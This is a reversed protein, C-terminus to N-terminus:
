GSVDSASRRAPIAAVGVALVALATGAVTGWGPPGGATPVTLDLVLAGLLQGGITALTFLLVGTRGVLAAASVVFVIGLPGGLYLWLDAPPVRPLGTALVEVAAAVALVLIAVLFNVLTAPLAADVIGGGGAAANVRANVAQQWAIVIGALLPIAALGLLAPDGLGGSTALLVAALTLVAGALRTATVPRRGGPGIGARDVALSSTTQGAVVGVTFVAVGIAGVTLGQSIVLGAGGIGGALQWGRLRGGRLADVIHGLGARMRPLVAALVLLIATGGALSLAPGAVAADMRDALEANLRAQAALAAGAAVAVPLALLTRGGPRPDTM